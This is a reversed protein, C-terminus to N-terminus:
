GPMAQQQRADIRQLLRGIGILAHMCAVTEQSPNDIAAFETEAAAIRQEPTM